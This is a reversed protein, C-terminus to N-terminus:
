NLFSLFKKEIKSMKKFDENKKHDYGFLHALGHIWLKNLNLKFSEKDNKNKIKNLNIIIDGIYIEKEKNKLKSKLENSTYFPFSLIDTTKNKNRFKKNLKKIKKSESLLLSCFLKKKKYITFKKNFKYLNKEFFNSPNKIYKYWAKSDPIINIKLM